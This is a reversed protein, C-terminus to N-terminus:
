LLQMRNAEYTTEEDNTRSASRTSSRRLTKQTKTRMRRWQTLVIRILIGALLLFHAALFLLVLAALVANNGLRM